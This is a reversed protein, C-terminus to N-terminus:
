RERMGRKRYGERRGEERRGETERDIRHIIASCLSVLKIGGEM